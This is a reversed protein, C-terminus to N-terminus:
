NPPIEEAPPEDELSNLYVLAIQAQLTNVQTINDPIIIEVNGTYTGAEIEGEEPLISRVSVSPELEEPVISNVNKALGTLYIHFTTMESGSVAMRSGDSVSALFADYGEPVETLSVQGLDMEIDVEAAKEIGVSVTVTGDFSSDAFAAGDPLYPTINVETVFTQTMGTVDIVGPPISIMTASSLVSSRGALEVIEPDTTVQGNVLYGEAPEGTFAVSIPFSSIPLITVTLKVSTINLTLNSADILTDNEDYLRIDSYTSISSSAGSVDVAAVARQISSVKSAPGSIRVQNQDPTAIGAQFGDAPEGSTVTQLSLIKSKRDEISLRVNDISGSYDIESHYKTSYYRIEVTNLSTMDAIDATAMINGEELRDIISRRASVVVTPVVDTGDLVSYVQNNDTILNTHLLRVPVNSVTMRTIPDNFNTVLFWMLIALILSIIKLGLNNFINGKSNAALTLGEREM